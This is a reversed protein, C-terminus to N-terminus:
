VMINLLVDSFTCDTKQYNPSLVVLVSNEGMWEYAIPPMYLTINFVLLSAPYSADSVKSTIAAPVAVAEKLM